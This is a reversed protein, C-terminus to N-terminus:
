AKPPTMLAIIQDAAAKAEENDVTDKVLKGIQSITDTANQNKVMWAVFQTDIAQGQPTKALIERATEITQALTGAVQSLATNKGSFQRARVGFFISLLGLIGSTVLGGAGPVFTGVVSGVTGAVAKATDSPAATVVGVMNTGVAVNTTYTVVTNYNTFPVAVPVGVANTVTVVNVVTNTQYLPVVNTLVVLKEVYNTQYNAFTKEFGTPPTTSKCGVAIVIFALLGATALINKKM